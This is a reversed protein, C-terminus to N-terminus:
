KWKKRRKRKLNWKRRVLFKLSIFWSIFRVKKDQKAILNFFFLFTFCAKATNIKCLPVWGFRKWTSRKLPKRADSSSKRWGNYSTGSLSQHQFSILHHRAHEVRKSTVSGCDRDPLNGNLMRVNRNDLCNSISKIKEGNFLLLELFNM